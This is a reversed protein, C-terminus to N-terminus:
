SWLLLIWLRLSIQQREIQEAHPRELIVKHEIEEMLFEVQTNSNGKLFCLLPDGLFPSLSNEPFSCAAEASTLIWARSEIAEPNWNTAERVM